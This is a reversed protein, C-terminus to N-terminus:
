TYAHQSNMRGARPFHKSSRHFSALRSLFHHNKSHGHKGTHIVPFQSRDPNRVIRSVFHRPKGPQSDGLPAM